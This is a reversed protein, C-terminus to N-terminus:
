RSVSKGQSGAKRSHKPASKAVGGAAGKASAAVKWMRSAPGTATRVPHPAHGTRQQRMKSVGSRSAATLLRLEMRVKRTRDAAQTARQEAAEARNLLDDHPILLDAPIALAARLAKVQGISLPRAGSFFESVRSKGGLLGALDARTMGRQELAFDVLERPTLPEEGLTAHTRDYAEILMTLYELRSYEATGPRPDADLLTLMETHAADFEAEDSLLRGTPVTANRTM